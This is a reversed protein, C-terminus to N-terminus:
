RIGATDVITLPIGQISIVAEIADRTTGPIESVIAKEQKVLLNLLSSKGVNPKGVIAIKIGETFVKGSQGEKLIKNMEEIITVLKGNLDNNLIDGYDDAFDIEYNLIILLNLLQNRIESIKRSLSGSLQKLSVELSKETRSNIIELVSEAQTLDIRGNLFARKTFEGPQALRAGKSMCLHLVANIAAIGGHCGIEAMDERTYTAPAKMITVLVEDLIKGNDDIIHGYRVTHSEWVRDVKRKKAPRFIKNIISVTEPGSLRVIGIGSIGYPTSLACITDKEM